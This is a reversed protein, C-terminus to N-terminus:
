FAAQGTAKFCPQECDLSNLVGDYKLPVVTSSSQGNSKRRLDVRAEAPTSRISDTILGPATVQISTSTCVWRPEDNTFPGATQGPCQAVTTKGSVDVTIEYEENVSNTFDIRVTPQCKITPCAKECSSSLLLMAVLGTLGKLQM